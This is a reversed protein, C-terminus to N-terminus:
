RVDGESYGRIADACSRCSVSYVSASGTVRQVRVAPAADRCTACVPDVAHCRVAGDRDFTPHTLAHDGCRRCYALRGDRETMDDLYTTRIM